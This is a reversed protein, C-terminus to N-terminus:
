LQSGRAIVPPAFTSGAGQLPQAQSTGAFCAIVAATVIVPLSLWSAPRASFPSTPASKQLPDSATSASM